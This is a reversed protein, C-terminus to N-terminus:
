NPIAQVQWQDNDEVHLTHPRPEFLGIAIKNGHPHWVGYRTTPAILMNPEGHEVIILIPEGWPDLIDDGRLALAHQRAGLFEGLGRIRAVDDGRDPFSVRDPHAQLYEIILPDLQSGYSLWKKNRAEEAQALRHNIAGM